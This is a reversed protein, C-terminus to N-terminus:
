STPEDEGPLSKHPELRIPFAIFFTTGKGMGESEAWIRGGHLEVIDRCLALGIGLGEFRRRLGSDVQYFREFIKDLKDPPIGVGEDRVGIVVNEAEQRVLIRITSGAPSFKMANHLLNDMVQRLLQPDAQITPLPSTTELVLHFKKGQTTQKWERVLAKLWRTLIIPQRQLIEGQITRMLLLRNIMFELREVSNTMVQLAQQQDESLEGLMGERLLDIYGKLLTLPTRLEHSVNQLVTDKVQLAEELRTNVEQLRSILLLREALTGVERGVTSLFVIEGETWPRPQFCAVGLGGLCRDEAMIPVGLLGRLKFPKMAQIAWRYLDPSLADHFIDSIVVAEELSLETERAARTCVEAIDVKVGRVVKEGGVWVAGAEVSLAAIVGDLVVDLLAPLDHAHAASTLIDHLSEQYALLRESRRLAEKLPSIDELSLVALRTPPAPLPVSAAWFTHRPSTADNTLTLSVEERHFTQGKHLTDSVLRRVACEGCHLSFGCGRPDEQAHICHLVDGLRNGYLAQRPLGTFDSVAQNAHHLRRDGDVVMMLVPTADLVAALEAANRRAEEQARYRESVDITAEIMYPISGDSLRVPYAHIEMFHQEGDPDYHVHEVMTPKGTDRVQSLPCPHEPDNCPTQRHHTLQYCPAGETRSEVGAARNALVVSYDEVDIIYFPYPLADLVSLLLRNLVDLGRSAPM